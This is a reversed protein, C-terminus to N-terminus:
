YVIHHIRYCFMEYTGPIIRNWKLGSDEEFKTPALTGEGGSMSVNFLATTSEQGRGTM